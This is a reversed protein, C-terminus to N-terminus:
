NEMNKIKEIIGTTSVGELMEDILVIKTDDINYPDERHEWAFKNAVALNPLVDELVKKSVEGTSLEPAIFVYDVIELADAMEARQNETFIPRSDGKVKKTIKDSIIGVLLKNEPAAEKAKKLFFLHGPHLLDFTGIVFTIKGDRLTHLKDFDIIM